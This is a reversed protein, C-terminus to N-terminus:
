FGNRCSWCVFAKVKLAHPYFKNCKECDVGHQNKWDVGSVALKFHSRFSKTQFEYVDGVKMKWEPDIQDPLRNDVLCEAKIYDDAVSAIKIRIDLLQHQWVQDPKLSSNGFISVVSNM